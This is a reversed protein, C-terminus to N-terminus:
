AFVKQLAPEVEAALSSLTIERTRGRRHKVQIPANIFGLVELDSVLTSVSSRGLVLSGRTECLKIYYQLVSGTTTTTGNHTLHIISLLVIKSQLPLTKAVELLWDQNLRQYGARVHDETIITAEDQEAVDGSKHLLKLAIRADGHEQASIAACLSITAPRLANPQFALAVRDNLIETLQNANYPPFVFSTRGFSSITSPTLRDKFHIDNTVGIIGISSGFDIFQNEAARSLTYLLSQNQLMDIEDLVVVVSMNTVNIADWLMDYYENTSLGHQIVTNPAINLIIEKIIRVVTNVKKCNIFASKISLSDEKAREKMEKIVYRVVATKGTGSKGFILANDLCGGRFVNRIVGAVDRLQQDRAILRAPVYGLNLISQDLFVQSDDKPFLASM